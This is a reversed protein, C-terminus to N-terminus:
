RQSLFAGLRHAKAGAGDLMRRAVVVGNEPVLCFRGQIRMESRMMLVILVRSSFDHSM